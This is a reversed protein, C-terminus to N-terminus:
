WGGTHYLSQIEESSLVRNYILIDDLSGKFIDSGSEKRGITVISSSQGLINLASTSTGAPVGDIYFSVTTGSETIVVQHWVSESFSLSSTPQQNNYNIGSNPYYVLKRLGSTPTICLDYGTNGKRFIRPSNTGGSETKVWAIISIESIPTNLSISNPITIYQNGGDFHFAKNVEGFRNNSLTAGIITGNNGNGSEDNANGNFPYYAILGNSPVTGGTIETKICRVSFGTSKSDNRRHVTANNWDMDRSMGNSSSFETSSWWIGNNGIDNFIGSSSRYGGPLATFGTENTAGTNPTLWHTLSIEKLKGGANASEPTSAPNALPDIYKLLTSWEPDTPVHWGTPCLIGTNVTNWDYLVGYDIKYANSNNFLWYNPINTNDNYKTTKLNEAMWTQTGLQITKYSNGDNDSVTGYTINPNFIIGSGGSNQTTFSWVPGPTTNSHNDKAVVKWYYLVGANLINPSISLTTKDTGVQTTPPNITGLFIDFKLPDNEPDTCTWSLTPTASIGMAGNTPSPTSPLSPPNNVSPLTTFSVPSGYGPGQSNIVYATVFYPTNPSLGSLTTSFPNTVYVIPLKTGTSIPNSSTGWYVGRETVNAGGDSIINGGVSASSSVINTPTSTSVTPISINFDSAITFPFDWYDYIINSNDYSRLEVTLLHDGKSLNNLQFHAAENDIYLYCTNLSPITIQIPPVKDKFDILYHLVAIKDISETNSLLPVINVIDSGNFINDNYLINNYNQNKLAYGNPVYKGNIDLFGIKTGSSYIDIYTSGPPFNISIGANSDYKGSKIILTSSTGKLAAIFKSYPILIKGLKEPPWNTVGLAPLIFAGSPDNVYFGDQMHGTVVFAHRLNYCNIWVPYGEDLRKLIYGCLNEVNAWNPDARESLIGVGDLRKDLYTNQLIDLGSLLGAYGRESMLSAFYPGKFYYGASRAIMSLSYYACWKASGQLYSPVNYTKSPNLKNKRFYDAYDNPYDIAYKSFHLTKAVATKNQLNIRTKLNIWITDCLTRIGIGLNEIESKGDIYKDDFPLTIIVSDKFTLGDPGLEYIKCGSNITSDKQKVKTISILKSSSLVEAPIEVSAGDNTKVTGGQTGINGQDTYIPSPPTDKHCSSIIVLIIIFSFVKIINKM